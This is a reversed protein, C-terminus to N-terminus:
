RGSAPRARSGPSPPWPNPWCWRTAPWASLVEVRELTRLGIRVQQEAIRGWVITRVRRDGGAGLVSGAPLTLAREKRGVQVQLSLTM